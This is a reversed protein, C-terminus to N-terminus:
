PQPTPTPDNAALPRDLIVARQTYGMRHYFPVATPSGTYADLSARTAGARAGWQHATALLATAVGSRRTWGAVLLADVWLTTTTAQRVMQYRDDPAPRHLHATVFGALRRDREAVLRVQDPGPDAACRRDFLEALGASDPVVFRAPDLAAYEGAVELWVAACGPGDGARAPRVQIVM